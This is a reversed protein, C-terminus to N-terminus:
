KYIEVIMESMKQAIEPHNEIIDNDEWVDNAIDFLSKKGDVYEIYKYQYDYVCKFNTGERHDYLASFGIDRHGDTDGKVLGLISKSDVASPVDTGAIEAFTMALDQLEVISNDTEGQRTGNPVSVILPINISGRFPYSKAYKGHDGLMEGHDSAYVIITNDLEDRDEVLKIIDGINRDINEIMAAYCQRIEMANEEFDAKHGLEYERDKVTELMSKTVDFPDHPGTFNVQIFWPEGVPVEGILDLANQGIWNDCYAHNPLPTPHTKHKRENLDDYHIDALGEKELFEMYPGMAGGNQKYSLIADIKGENDILNTFGLNKRKEVDFWDYSNKRLDFKGCGLVNYGQSKLASYFTPKEPNYDHSNLPAECRPYRTGSALCARAPSCLPAATTANLFTVGKEMLKDINPLHLEPRQMEWKAFQEDSYSLWERRHQDPFLFLINPKKM